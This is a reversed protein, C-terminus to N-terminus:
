QICLADPLASGDHPHDADRDLNGPVDSIPSLRLRSCAVPDHRQWSEHNVQEGLVLAAVWGASGTQHEGGATAARHV